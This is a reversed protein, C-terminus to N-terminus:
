VRLFRQYEAAHKKRKSHCEWLRGFGKPQGRRLCPNSERLSRWARFDALKLRGCGLATDCYIATRTM